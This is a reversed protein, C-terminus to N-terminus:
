LADGSLGQGGPGLDGVAGIDGQEDAAQGNRFCAHTPSAAAELVDVSAQVARGMDRCQQGGAEAALLVPQLAQLAVAWSLDPQVRRQRSASRRDCGRGAVIGM